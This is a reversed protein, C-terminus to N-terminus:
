PSAHGRRASSTAARALEDFRALAADLDAEDFLECRSFVASEFAFVHLMKWEAAFGDTSRGSSASTLVAGFDDLRHVVEIRTRVDPVMSWLERVYKDMDGSVSRVGLRHDVNVWDSTTTPVERRNFAAYIDAILSWTRAHPAAEGVLYRADLETFAADLDDPDFMVLRLIRGDVDVETIALMDIQVGSPRSDGGWVTSHSLLLRDGRMALGTSAVNPMGIGTFARLDDIEADRGRRVGAGVVRRRDDQVFDASFNDAMADPDDTALSSFQQAARSAANDLRGDPASAELEDFRALAADLDDEDFVEVHSILAGRVRLVQIMRWEAEFGETSTGASAFGIVTGHQSLRHDREIRVQYEPIDDMTAGIYTAMEGPAFGIGRRHDVSVCDTTHEPTQRLNIAECGKVVASWVLDYSRAEGAIYRADLEASASDVDEPDFLVSYCILDDGVETLTLHEAVLQNEPDRYTDRTVALRAGRAAVAQTTLLWGGTVEFLARVVAELGPAEADDRLGRRRDEFRAKAIHQAVVGDVDGNNLAAAVRRRALTARNELPAPPTLEGFRALATDLDSEDFLECRNVREGDITLLNLERWEADFGQHSTACVLQTFLAGLDNLRHVAVFRNSVNEAMDWTAQIHALHDGPAFGIVSRHDVNAYDVSTPPMERRNFAANAATMVSWAHAHPAAEGALYRADLEAM